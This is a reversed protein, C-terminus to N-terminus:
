LRVQPDGKELCAKKYAYAREFLARTLASGGRVQAMVQSALLQTRRAHRHGTQMELMGVRDYIRNWLRPVSVFVHPRLAQMFFSFVGSPGACSHNAVATMYSDSSSWSSSCSGSPTRLRNGPPTVQGQQLHRVRKSISKM